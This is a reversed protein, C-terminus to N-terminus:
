CGVYSPKQIKKVNVRVPNVRKIGTRKMEKVTQVRHRRVINQLNHIYRIALINLYYPFM